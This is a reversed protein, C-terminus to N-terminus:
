NNKYTSLQIQQIKFKKDIRKKLLKMDENVKQQTLKAYIQTTTINKHGMMKCVTELPVGQSLTILTAFNHRSFHFTIRKEIGCKKAFRNLNAEITPLTKINFVKDSIREKKYKDIIQLPIDLLRIISEVGTKQRKIRIWYSGNKEKHIHHVSFNCLDAYSLGTFTSFIFMDRTHCLAKSPATTQIFRDLEEQTMYKRKSPTCERTFAGFPNKFLIGQNIALRIVRQLVGIYYYISNTMFRQEIRLFSDFKEIFTLDLQRFPIDKIDYYKELFLELQSYVAKYVATYKKAKTVGEQKECDKNLEDFLELLNKKKIGIGNIANKVLEATIYGQEDLIEKYYIRIKNTLNEIHQNAEAAHNSKGTLRYTKANWCSPDIDIKASFQAMDGNISIRGMLPTLGNRKAKNRNIYFLVAFTSYTKM